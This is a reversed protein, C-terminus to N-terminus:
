NLKIYNNLRMHKIVEEKNDTIKMSCVNIIGGKTDVEVIQYKGKPSEIIQRNHLNTIRDPDKLTTYGINSYKGELDFSIVPYEGRNMTLNVIMNKFSNNELTLKSSKAALSEESARLVGNDRSSINWQYTIIIIVLILGAILM